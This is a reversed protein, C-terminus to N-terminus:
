TRREQFGAERAERERRKFSCFLRSKKALTGLLYDASLESQELNGLTKQVNRQHMTHMAYLCMEQM